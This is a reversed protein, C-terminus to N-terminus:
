RRRGFLGGHGEGVKLDHLKAIDKLLRAEEKSITEPFKVNVRYHIDGRRKGRLSPLGQSELSVEEGANTGAPVHLKETGTVTPVEIEGGLLMQVYPVSLEAYLDDGDREFQPHDKVRIEVYLDGNPGGMYGGEGEGNVRLRTGTDVGAPISIRLRHHKELRGRGSCKQCPNKIMQGTGECTPCPSAMTFFGQSRVVQGSGHCTTCPVPKSGKEAGSGHCEGCSEDADFEIERDMGSIVDKLEIEILYRLDAGRRPAQPRRRQSAGGAGAMGGFLDGFIDGFNQFIDEMNQFGGGGMGGQGFAAHGFRDYRSKKEADSLINYAEAAEKFKEEAERNGPNKDPHLQMALKRYAKKITDGDADRSVGLIEYYDRRTSM